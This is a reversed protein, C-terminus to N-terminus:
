SDEKEEKAEKKGLFDEIDKSESKLKEADKINKNAQKNLNSKEKSIDKMTDKATPESCDGSELDKCFKNFKHSKNMKYIAYIAISIMVIVTIARLIM